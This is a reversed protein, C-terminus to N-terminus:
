AVSHQPACERMQAEPCRFGAECAICAQQAACPQYQGAQCGECPAEGGIAFGADCPVCAAGATAAESTAPAYGLECRLSPALRLGYSVGALMSGGNVAM